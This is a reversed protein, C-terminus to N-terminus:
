IPPLHIGVANVACMVTTTQGKEASTTKGVQEQGLKAMIQGPKQVVVRLGSEDANWLRDATVNHKVLEDKLIRFFNDVSPKNFATARSMSTPEPHRM